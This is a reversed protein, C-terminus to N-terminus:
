VLDAIVKEVKKFYFLGTIFLVVSIFFSIYIYDNEIPAGLIAWRFGEVVGAMPNLFYITAAWKPLSNTVISAPYAIPTAYLGFQVVFPIIHQIDRYRVTLSSVWVGLALSSIMGFFIFVPLYILKHSPVFNYWILLVIIFLFAIAFDVLGVVAKSLPIILRPFFIKKIMNQSSIISNGSQNLVFAFYSWAAMGCIAFLPYPIDGTDIKAAKGFVLTFILLTAFPQIFAWTFGLFTQAYRVRYDRYALTWFLDKYDVLEQIGLSLKRKNPDIILTKKM